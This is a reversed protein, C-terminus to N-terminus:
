CKVIADFTIKFCENGFYDGFLNETKNARLTNIVIAKLKIKIDEKDSSKAIYEEKKIIRRLECVEPLLALIPKSLSAVFPAKGLLINSYEFTSELLLVIDAEQIQENASNSFDLGDLVHITGFEKYKEKLRKNESSKLRLVLESQELLYSDTKILDIYADILIDIDRGFQLGGHYSISIPKEKKRVQSMDTLNFVSNDYQHPLTHFKKNSGYIFQLDKSLLNSPTTCGIANQVIGYMEYFDILHKKTLLNLSSTDFFLPYPDHFNIISNNLIPLDKLGLITEYELGSSRVFVLDYDEYKIKSIPKRYQNIVFSQYLSKTFIRRYLANLIKLIIPPKRNVLYETISSVPLLEKDYEHSYTIFYHLDIIADPYIMKLKSIFSRSVIGESTGSVRLDQVIIIVKM